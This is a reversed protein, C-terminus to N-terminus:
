LHYNQWIPIVKRLDNMWKYLGVNSEQRGTPDVKLIPFAIGSGFLGPGIIGTHADYDLNCIHEALIKPSRSIFGIPYIAKNCAFLNEKINKDNSKYRKIRPDLKYSINIRAWNATHEKLGTNDYLTWDGMKTAYRHPTLYFNIIEKIGIDLLNKMIIMSSHSSGFVAIRDNDNIKYQLKTPNLADYISIEKIGEYSLTKPTAGTALIVKEASYSYSNTSVQWLGSDSISLSNVCDIKSIVISRLYSTVWLLAATVEKLQCFSESPMKELSFIYPKKIFNFGSIENLFKLFLNVTTNSYVEGWYKGFDGVYFEKDIWLIDNPSVGQEILIGVNAIGAPGAGIVCWPYSSNIKVSM